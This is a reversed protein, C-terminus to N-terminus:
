AQAPADAPPTGADAAAAVPADSAVEAPAAEAAPAAAPAAEAAAPAPAAAEPAKPQQIQYIENVQYKPKGEQMVVSDGTRLGKLKERIAPDQIALLAFQLRPNISEGADNHESGVLFSDDAVQDTAVLVGQAVMNKVKQSLEECNNEIMIRSIVADTIAEGAASAKIQDGGRRGSLVACPSSCTRVEGAAGCPRRATDADNPERDECSRIQM